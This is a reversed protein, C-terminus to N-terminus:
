FGIDALTITATGTLKIVLDTGATFNGDKNADVFVYTAGGETQTAVGRNATGDNFFGTIGAAAADALLATSAVFAGKAYLGSKATGTFAFTGLDISDQGSVFNTVTDMATLVLAGATTKSIASESGAKYVVTDHKGTAGLTLTDGGGAGYFTDGTLNGIFTDAGAGGLYVAAVTAATAAGMTLGASSASADIKTIAGANAWASVTLGTDGTLALTTAGTVDLISITNTGSTNGTSNFTLTEIGSTVVKAATITSSAAGVNITLADASGSADSLAFTVFKAQTATISVSQTTIKDITSDATLAGDVKIATIGAIANALYTGAGAGTSLTEFGTVQKGTTATLNSALTIQVTDTGDGGNYTSLPDFATAGLKLTDNGAGMSVIAKTAASVDFTDAASGGTATATAVAGFTAKVSGTAASADITKVTAALTQGTLDLTKDGSVVLKTTAADTLLKVTNTGTNSVINLTAMKAGTITLGNAATAKFGSLTLTEAADTASAAWTTVIGSSTTTGLQLGQGNGTTITGALLSDAAEVRVTTVGTYAVTNIPIAISAGPSVFDIVEVNTLTVPLVDTGSNGFSFLKLTDIGGGGNVTDSAQVTGATGNSEYDGIITDNGGTGTIVDTAATTLTFTTGVVPASGISAITAVATAQAATLTAADVVTSLWAKATANATAGSYALISAASLQVDSTFTASAALKSTVALADASGAAPGSLVALAMKGFSVAGSSVQQSWYLLGPADAAHGFVNLYVSNIKANLDLGVIAGTYETQLAFNNAVSTLSQKTTGDIQDVWYILGAPDAPRNFYALYLSQVDSATTM